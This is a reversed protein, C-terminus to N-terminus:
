GFWMGEVPLLQAIVKGDRGASEDNRRQLEPYRYGYLDQLVSLIFLNDADRPDRGLNNDPHHRICVVAKYKPEISKPNDEDRGYCHHIALVGPFPKQAARCVVCCQGDRRIVALDTEANKILWEQRQTSAQRIRTRKM